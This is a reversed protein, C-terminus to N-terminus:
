EFYIIEYSFCDKYAEFAINFDGKYRHGRIGIVLGDSIKFSYTVSDNDASLEARPIEDGLTGDSNIVYIKTNYTEADDIDLIILSNKGSYAKILLCNNDYKYANIPKADLDFRISSPIKNSQILDSNENSSGANGSSFDESKNMGDEGMDMDFSKSLPGLLFSFIVSVAILVSAAVTLKKYFLARPSRLSPYDLLAEPMEGIALLIEEGSIKNDM